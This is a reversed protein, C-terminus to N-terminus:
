RASGDLLDSLAVVLDAPPSWSFVGAPHGDELPTQPGCMGRLYLYLVGGLHRAPDYGPQRWRLYRHVVVVYLLAQLPYDSHLMAEVLRARSYDAATLPVDPDGLRNTKYDVVLYRHGDGDPVRLVVDISGSLYGRLSQAGLTTGVLRDAYPLLPDGAPLHKRLLSGVDALTAEGRHALDGGALPIEFDLERLRDALGVEGLTLGPALPGLPTRHLPVLAEALADAPADVPWWALQERVQAALEAELDAALPDAHELVGHVLSGFTAGSPLDAMPSPVDAGVAPVAPLAADDVEDDLASVEPESSVGRGEEAARLLGSYSTRRWALDIARDFTRVGLAAPV